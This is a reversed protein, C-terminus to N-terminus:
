AAAPAMNSCYTLSFAHRLIMWFVAVQLLALTGLIMVGLVRHTKVATGCRPSFTLYIQKVTRSLYKNTPEIDDAAAAAKADDAANAVDAHHDAPKDRQLLVLWQECSQM